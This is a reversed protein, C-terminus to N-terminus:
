KRKEARAKATRRIEQWDKGDMTVTAGSEVAELLMADIDRRLQRDRARRIMDRMFESATGFGGTEVQKDVWKKLDPPLSINMM